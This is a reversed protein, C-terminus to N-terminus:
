RSMEATDLENPDVEFLRYIGVPGPGVFAIPTQLQAGPVAGIGDCFQCAYMTRGAAREAGALCSSVSGQDASTPGPYYVEVVDGVSWETILCDGPRVETSLMDEVDRLTVPPNIVRSTAALVFLIGVCGVLPIRVTSGAGAHLGGAAAVVLLLPACFLFFRPAGGLGLSLVAAVALPSIVTMWAASEMKERLSWAGVGALTVVVGAGLARIWVPGWEGFAVLLVTDPHWGMVGTGGAQVRPVMTFGVVEFFVNHLVPLYLLTLGALVSTACLFATRATRWRALDGKIGGVLLPGLQGFVLLAMFLHSGGGLVALVAYVMWWRRQSGELARLLAYSCGLTFFVLLAYGRAQVSYFGMVPSLACLAAAGYGVRRGGLRGGLLYALPITGLGALFAPLRLGVESEGLVLSTLAAFFSFVPHNNLTTFTTFAVWPRHPDVFRLSTFAEDYTLGARLLTARFALAGITLALILYIAKREPGDPASDAPPSQPSKPPADLAPEGPRTRLFLMSLVLGSAGVGIGAATAVRIALLMQEIGEPEIVGDASRGLAFSELRPLLWTEPILSIGLSALAASAFAIATLWLPKV